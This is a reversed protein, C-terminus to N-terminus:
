DKRLRLLFLQRSQGYNNQKTGVCGFESLSPSWRSLNGPHLESYSFLIPQGLLNTPPRKSVNEQAHVDASPFFNCDLKFGDTALM